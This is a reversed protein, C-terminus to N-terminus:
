PSPKKETGRASRPGPSTKVPLPGGVGGSDGADPKPYDVRRLEILRQDLDYIVYTAKPNNDRPQGVSGPNVFYQPGKELKFKSLTGGHVLRDRIFAVPVHTHGFFCVPTRQHLFHSAAALKDFVYGWREPADLSAHVLTFGSITLVTPLNSLWQRDDETLQERTWRVVEAAEHNFGNLPADTSCYDDHNGRVCPIGMGRIIDLCEKPNNYYGVIDGLCAVHTCNQAKIDALVAKLAPLNAHIDALIAYRM